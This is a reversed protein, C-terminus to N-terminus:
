YLKTLSTQLQSSVQLCVPIDRILIPVVFHFTLISIFIPEKHPMLTRLVGRPVYALTPSQTPNLELYILTKFHCRRYLAQLRYLYVLYM